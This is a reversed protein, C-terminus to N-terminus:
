HLVVQRVAVGTATSIRLAYLGAPLAAPLTLGAEDHTDLGARTLVTRGTADVLTLGVTGTPLGRVRLTTGAPVPNPFLTLGALAAAETPTGLPALTADFGMVFPQPVNASVAPLAVSGLAPTGTVGLGTLVGQNTTRDIAIGHGLVYGTAATAVATLLNGRVDYALLQTGRSSGQPGVSTALAPTWQISGVEETLLWANGAADLALPRVEALQAYGTTVQPTERVWQFTGTRRDIRSLAFDSNWSPGAPTITGYAPQGFLQSAFYAGSTDATAVQPNLCSVDEVYRVWRPQGTPSYCALYINYTFATPFAQGNYTANAEACSGAAYIYGQPDIALSTLRKAHRQVISSLSDGAANYRTIYSDVFDEYGVWLQGHADFTVAGVSTVLGQGLASNMQRLWQVQGASDLRALFCITSNALGVGAALVHQADFRLSDVFFGTLLVGGDPAATVHRIAVDGSITRGFRVSGDARLRSLRVSGLAENYNRSFAEPAAWWASGDPLVAADGHVYEYNFSYAYPRSQGWSVSQAHVPATVLAAGALLLSTLFRMTPLLFHFLSFRM